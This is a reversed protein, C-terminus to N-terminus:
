WWFVRMSTSLGILAQCGVLSLVTLGGTSTVSGSLLSIGDGLCRHLFSPTRRRVVSWQGGELQKM